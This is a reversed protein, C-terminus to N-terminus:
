LNTDHYFKQFEKMVQGFAQRTDTVLRQMQDVSEKEERDGEQQLQYFLHVLRHAGMQAASGKLTHGIKGASKRDGNSKLLIM